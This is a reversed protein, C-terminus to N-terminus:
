RLSPQRAFVLTRANSAHTNLHIPFFHISSISLAPLVPTPTSCYSVQLSSLSIVGKPYGKRHRRTEHRGDLPVDKGIKVKLMGKRMLVDMPFFAKWGMEKENRRWRPAQYCVQRASCDVETHHVHKMESTM